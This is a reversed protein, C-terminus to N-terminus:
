EMSNQLEGRRIKGLDSRPLSVIHTAGIRAYGACAGHYRALEEACAMESFLHLVNGKRADACAIVAYSGDQMGARALADEVARLSVLEGLIKVIDDSRGQWTLYGDDLRVLDQTTWWEGERPQFKWESSEAHLIGSFLPEGAIELLGKGDVRAQWCDLIRLRDSVYTQNIEDRSQTAIQSSAETMGFSALIPWGLNRARRGDDLSLRGGGVIVVQLSSPSAVGANCLDHVQTPVLSLHTVRERKMWEVARNVDWRDPHHVMRCGAVYARAAVGMGGVHWWPLLLGWVSRENVELLQNVCRASALIGTKKIVILKGAGTTGSTGFVFSQKPAQPMDELGRATLFTATQYQWLSAQVLSHPDM